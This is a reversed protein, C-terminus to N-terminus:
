ILNQPSGPLDLRPNNSNTDTGQRQIASPTTTVQANISEQLTDYVQILQGATEYFGAYRVGEKYFVAGYYARGDVYGTQKLGVLDTVQILKDQPIAGSLAEVPDRVVEFLPVAEFNVGTDSIMRITPYETFGMGPNIVNIKAIRGFTNCEYELVAGNSPTIEIQDVGCNYNIGSDKILVDKLKLVVPYGEPGAEPGLYGNGPEEVIVDTVIGRGDIRKPCPPAILVASIGIPNTAWPRTDGPVKVKTSINLAIGTPNELFIDVTDQINEMDVRITYKGKALNVFTPSAEGTFGGSNGAILQDNIFVSGRNDGQFKVIYQGDQPFDVNSWVYTRVGNIEPNTQDIPPLFPSVANKNMFNGWRKDTYKFLEPGSYTVGGITKTTNSAKPAGIIFKCRDGNLDYFRGKNSRIIIDTFDNDTADEMEVITDGRKRLKVRGQATKFKVIYERGTELTQTTTEKIQPGNYDKSFTFKGVFEITNAYAAASTVKFEVEEQPASTDRSTAWDQTSFVKQDITTYTITSENLVEVDITHTGQNLFIKKTTPNTDKFGGVRPDTNTFGLGGAMQEQGDILIRGGNDATAKLGYFGDFPIEVTWSNSFVIGGSDTNPQALPKVPSIAYRNTFRSWASGFTVPYWQEKAGSTRTTWIPNPPCRGEQVPPPEQPVTPEPADITLAVGMPNENWSRISILGGIDAQSSTIRMAFAMPNIGKISSFGFRGGPIQELEVRIRYKGKKFFKTYTSKGTGIDTNPKFGRKELIVEDGGQEIDRLGNGIAINGDGARNGIYIRANDDVEVEIIYNGDAPFDVNEWRIRHTGAYPNNELQVSTDFPCVGYENIFGGRGYVNTRWLRRDARGIWDITNFIESSIIEVPTNILDLRVTHLGAKYFKKIERIPGRFQDLESILLNDVYLKGQNDKTGKFIYNGTTPFDLNWEFTFLTGAFDSGPVNSPPKPSIAYKNQFDGWGRITEAPVGDAILKDRFTRDTVHYWGGSITPNNSTIKSPKIKRTNFFGGELARVIEQFQQIEGLIPDDGGIYVSPAWEGLDEGNPGWLRGYPVVITDCIFYEEYDDPRDYYQYIFTENGGRYGRISGGNRFNLGYSVSGESEIVLEDGKIVLEGLVARLVTGSGYGCEDRVSVQPDFSYGHGTRVVDVALISGDTGVIPNGVAGIGGGGRIDIKPPGCKVKQNVGACLDNKRIVDDTTLANVDNINLYRLVKDGTKFIFVTGPNLRAYENAECVSLGDVFGNDSDIYGVRIDSNDDLPGFLQSGM